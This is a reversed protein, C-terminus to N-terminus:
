LEPKYVRWAGRHPVAFKIGQRSIATGERLFGSPSCRLHVAFEPMKGAPLTNQCSGPLFPISFLPDPPTRPDRSAGRPVSFRDPLSGPADLIPRFRERSGGSARFLPGSLGGPRCLASFLTRPPDRPAFFAGPSSGPSPNEDIKPRNLSSKRPEDLNAADVRANKASCASMSLVGRPGLGFQHGCPPAHRTNGSNRRFIM